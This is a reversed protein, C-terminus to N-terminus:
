NDGQHDCPMNVNPELSLSWTRAGVGWAWAIEVVWLEATKAWWDHYTGRDPNLNMRRERKIGWKSIPELSSPALM